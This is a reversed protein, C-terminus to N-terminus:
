LCRQTDDKSLTSVLTINRQMNNSPEHGPEHLFTTVGVNLQAGRGGPVQLVKVGPQRSALVCTQDNSGADVVIVEPQM